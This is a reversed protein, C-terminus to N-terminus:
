DSAAEDESAPPPPPRSSARRAVPTAAPTPAPHRPSPEPTEANPRVVAPRVRTTDLEVGSASIPALSRRSTALQGPDDTLDLPSSASGTDEELFDTRIRGAVFLIPFSLFLGKFGFLHECAILSVILLFGPMKVHRATLRPNLYYSEIKHLIFTLGVFLGVGLWGKQQYALLSLTVGSVINGIVPVLASVFILLMLAGVNPVGIILLVPLTMLTNCAAVILQLQVTVVTADAVHGLWKALTGTISRRDVRSWFAALEDEELVYVLALIFGMVVHIVFHGVANAATIASGSYHKAGEVLKEMGGIQEELRVVLPHERLQALREPFTEQMATFTRVTKGIGLWALVGLVAAIVALVILVCKKRSLGTRGSLTRASWGLAREFTVFFVLLIALHRFLYIVTGFAFLALLRRPTRQSFFDAVRDM